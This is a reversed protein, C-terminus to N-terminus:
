EKCLEAFPCNSCVSLDAPIDFFPKNFIDNLVRNLHEEYEAKITSIDNLPKGGVTLIPDFTEEDNGVNKNRIYYLAPAVPLYEPTFNGEAKGESHSVNASNQSQLNASNQPQLDAVAISYLCTQRYYASGQKTNDFMDAVEEIKVDSHDTGTKYDVIRLCRNDPSLIQDLRDVAGGISITKEGEPTNVTYNKKYKDELTVISFPTFKIDNRLLRVMYKRVISKLLQEMGTSENGVANAAHKQNEFIEERTKLLAKNVFPELLTPTDVYRQLMDATITVNGFTRYFLEATNHFFTGFAAADMTEDEDKEERLGRFYQYYFMKECRMYTNIASPSLFPQYQGQPTATLKEIYRHLDDPEKDQPKPVKTRAHFDTQLAIRRIKKPHNVLLNLLFRSMEGPSTDSNSSNYVLTVDKCRKLLRYFYYAFINTRDDSTNLGFAKKITYPIVSTDSAGKPMIGENCSLMLIHDFDLNRTELVGMIQIGKAPEGHFPITTTLIIQKYLRALTLPEIDLFGQEHLTKLRTVINHVRFLAEALRAGSGEAGWGGLPPSPFSTNSAITAITSLLIDLLYKTSQAEFTNLSQHLPHSELNRLYSKRFHKGDKTLGETYLELLTAIYSAPQTEALPFGATINVQLPQTTSSPLCYTAAPLLHEDCLIIATRRGDATRNNKLLWPEIYRTQLDDTLAQVINIQAEPHVTDVSAEDNRITLKDALVLFLKEECKLLKNFGVVYYKDLQFDDYSINEVVDRYLMGEYAIGLSRLDAKFATYIDLLNNWLSIFKQQIKSEHGFSFSNFFRVLLEKQHESLYDVSDMEHLGSINRFLQEPDALSKDVNDFDALLIEGWAYFQDLTQQEATIKCYAKHLMSVLQIHDALTLQSHKQFFETISFYRPAFVAEGGAEILYDNMWLSARKNPFIIAIRALNNGYQSIIDKALTQLM